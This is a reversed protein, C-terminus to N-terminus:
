EVLRNKRDDPTGVIMRDLQSRFDKYHSTQQHAKLLEENQWIEVTTFKSPTVRNQLTYFSMNGADERSARTHSALLSFADEASDEQVEIHAVLWLYNNNQSTPFAVAPINMIRDVSIFVLFCFVVIWVFKRKRQIWNLIDLM